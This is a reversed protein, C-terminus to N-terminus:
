SSMLTSLGWAFFFLLFFGKPPILARGSPPAAALERGQPSWLNCPMKMGTLPMLIVCHKGVVDVPAPEETDLGELAHMVGLDAPELVDEPHAEDCDLLDGLDTVEILIGELVVRERILVLGEQTVLIAARSEGTHLDLM